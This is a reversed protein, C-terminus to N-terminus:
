IYILIQCAATKVVRKFSNQVRVPSLIPPFLSVPRHSLQNHLSTNFKHGDGPKSIIAAGYKRIIVGAIVWSLRGRFVMERRCLM